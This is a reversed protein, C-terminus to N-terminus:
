YKRFCAWGRYKHLSFLQALALWIWRILFTSNLVYMYNNLLFKIDFICSMFIDKHFNVVKMGTQLKHIIRDCSIYLNSGPGINVFMKLGFQSMSKFISIMFKMSISCKAYVLTFACTSCTQLVYVLKWYIHDNVWCTVISNLFM